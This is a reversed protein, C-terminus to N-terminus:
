GNLFAARPLMRAPLQPFVPLREPRTFEGQAPFAPRPRQMAFLNPRPTNLAAPRQWASALRTPREVNTMAVPNIPMPLPRARRHSQHIYITLPDSVAFENVDLRITGTTPAIIAEGTQTFTGTTPLIQGVGNSFTGTRSSEDGTGNSFTGTRSSEDGTGNSLSGTRSSEDATGNSLSGSLDSTSVTGTVETEFVNFEVPGDSEFEGAGVGVVDIDIELTGFIEDTIGETEAVTGDLDSEFGNISVDGQLNSITGANISLDGQLNSITGPNISLDGQLNSITGPNISLDGQLNELTTGNIALDGTLGTLTTADITQTGDLFGTAQQRVIISNMDARMTSPLEFTARYRGLINTTTSTLPQGNNLINGQADLGFVEVVTDFNSSSPQATGVVTIPTPQTIVVRGHGVRVFPSDAVVEVTPKANILVSMLARTELFEPLGSEFRRSQRSRRPM